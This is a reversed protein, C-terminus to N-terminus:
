LIKIRRSEGAFLKRTLAIKPSYLAHSIKIYQLNLCQPVASLFAQYETSNFDHPPNCKTLVQLIPCRRLFSSTFQRKNDIYDLHLTKLPTRPTSDIAALAVVDTGGVIPLVDLIAHPGRSNWEMVLELDDLATYATCIIVIDHASFGESYSESARLLEDPFGWTDAPSRIDLEILQKCINTVMLLFKDSAEVEDGWNPNGAMSLAKLTVCQKPQILSTVEANDYAVRLQDLHIGRKCLWTLCGELKYYGEVSYINTTFQRSTILELLIERADYASVASNMCVISRVDLKNLVQLLIDSPLEFLSLPPDLLDLHLSANLVHEMERKSAGLKKGLRQLALPCDLLGGLLSLLTLPM